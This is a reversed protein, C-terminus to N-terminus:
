GVETGQPQPDLGREWVSRLEALPVVVQREFELRDGGALGLLTLPIGHQRALVQLEPLARSRASIIFRGQSEGFFAGDMRQLGSLRLSAGHMGRGGLLCAEALAVLMGGEAVDHASQLMGAAAADLMYAHVARERALDMAPPKGNVHGYLVKIYESGDLDNGSEGVLLVFDGDAQLGAPVRRAYHELLGTMGIVPTPHIAGEEGGNYLSVSSSVVPLDLGECASAIGAVAERLQWYVEPQEPSGFNFGAAVALPRAGTAVINRAAECVAIQAGQYPDLQCYRGNGDITLAIGLPTGNVRLVTADGGPPILTANGAMHDFRRFIRQRSCLNASDLLRVLARRWDQGEDLVYDLNLPPPESPLPQARPLRPPSGSALLQVPLASLTQEGDRIEVRESGTLEGIAVAPVEWRQLLEVAAAEFAPEIVLLIREPTEACVVEDPVMDPERRPVLGIDIQAGLGTEAACRALAGGLGAEGLEYAATMGPQRALELSAEILCRALFPDGGFVPHLDEGALSQESAPALRDRGTNAGALLLRHGTEPEHAPRAQGVPMVGLGMVNVVAGSAYGQDFYVEGGVTPVGACNSYGSIGAVACELQPRSGPLPGLRLSDLLALPRAGMAIVDRLVAGATAAASQSTRDSDSSQNQTKITLVAALGHGIDVPGLKGRLLDLVRRGSAPLQRLLRKSSRASCSESWLAAMLRLELRDPEHGLQEVLYSYEQRTLGAQRLQAEDVRSSM